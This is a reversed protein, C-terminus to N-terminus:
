NKSTFMSHNILSYMFTGNGNAGFMEAERVTGNQRSGNLSTKNKPMTSIMM